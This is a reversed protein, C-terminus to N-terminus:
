SGNLRAKGQKLRIPRKRLSGLRRSPSPVETAAREGRVKSRGRARKGRSKRGRSKKRCQKSKCGKRNKRKRGRKGNKRNKKSKKRCKQKRKQEPTPNTQVTSLKWKKSSPAVSGSTRTTLDSSPTSVTTAVTADSVAPTEGSELQRKLHGSVDRRLLHTNRKDTTRSRAPEGAMNFAVFFGRSKSRYADYLTPDYFHEFVTNEDMKNATAYVKGRRGMGVYLGSKKGQIQVFVNGRIDVTHFQVVCYVDVDRSGYVRGNPLIRVTTSSRQVYLTYQRVGYKEGREPISELPLTRIHTPQHAIAPQVETHRGRKRGKRRRRRPPRYTRQIRSTVAPRVTSPFGYSKLLEAMSMPHQGSDRKKPSGKRFHQSARSVKSLWDHIRTRERRNKTTHSTYYSSIDNLIRNSQARTVNHRLLLRRLRGIDLPLRSSNNHEFSSVASPFRKSYNYRNNTARLKSGNLKIEDNGPAKIHSPATPSAATQPRLKKTSSSNDRPFTADIGFVEHQRSKSTSVGNFNADQSDESSTNNLTHRDISRLSRSNRDRSSLEIQVDLNQSRSLFALFQQIRRKLLLRHVFSRSSSDLGYVPQIRNSQLEIERAKQDFTLHQKLPLALSFGFRLVLWLIWVVFHRRILM